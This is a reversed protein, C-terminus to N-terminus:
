VLDLVAKYVELQEEETLGLFEGMIIKDLERLDKKVKDLSVEQPSSAGLEIFIPLTSIRQTFKKFVKKVKTLQTKSIKLPNVVPFKEIDIWETKLSGQGLNARGLLERIIGFITCNLQASLLISLTKNKPQIEFLNHDVFVKEKNWPAKLREFHVM